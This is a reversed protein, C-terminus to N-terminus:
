ALCAHKEPEHHNPPHLRSALHRRVAPHLFPPAEHEDFHVFPDEYGDELLDAEVLYYHIGNDQQAPTVAVTTLVFEPSGGANRCATVVAVPRSEPRQCM